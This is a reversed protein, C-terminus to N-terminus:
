KPIQLTRWEAEDIVKFTQTLPNSKLYIPRLRIGKGRSSDLYYYEIKIADSTRYPSLDHVFGKETRTALRGVYGRIVRNQDNKTLTIDYFTKGEVPPLGVNVTTFDTGIEAPTPSIFRRKDITWGLEQELWAHLRPLTTVDPIETNSQFFTENYVHHITPKGEKYHIPTPTPGEHGYLMVYDEAFIENLYWDHTDGTGCCDTKVPFGDLERLSFWETDTSKHLTPMLITQVHHGYEHSLTHRFSVPTTNEKGGFLTIIHKKMQYNGNQIPHTAHLVIVQRLEKLEDGHRNGKLEENLAKLKDETWNPSDSSFVIGEPSVWEHPYVTLGNTAETPTIAGMSMVVLWCMMMWRKTKM